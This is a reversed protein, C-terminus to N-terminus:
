LSNEKSPFQGSRVEAAYERIATEISEGISAYRRVHRYRKGPPIGLIDHWVQVQGDCGGGAGIGITPISLEQTILSALAAPVAEIVIGIAGAAELARADARIREAQGAETGQAKHGGILHVSQPLLGIHGCVPVGADTMRRVTDALWDGGELKVAQAGGEKMLRVSNRIADAPSTEYSGFPLDALLLAWKLGRRVSSVHHVMDDITVPVTTSYGLAMIGVTDGVLVVDVGARDALIAAPYDYATVAVIREGRAKKERLGPVTLRERAAVPARDSTVEGTM